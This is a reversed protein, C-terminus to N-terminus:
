LVRLPSSFHSTFGAFGRRNQNNIHDFVIKIFRFLTRNGGQRLFQNAGDVVQGPGESFFTPGHDKGRIGKVLFVENELSFHFGM